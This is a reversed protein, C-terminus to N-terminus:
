LGVLFGSYKATRLSFFDVKPLFLRWVEWVIETEMQFRGELFTVFAVGWKESFGFCHSIATGSNPQSYFM